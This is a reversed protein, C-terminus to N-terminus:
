LGVKSRITTKVLDPRRQLYPIIMDSIFRDKENAAYGSSAGQALASEWARSIDEIFTDDTKLKNVTKKFSSGDIGLVRQAEAINNKDKYIREANTKIISETRKDSSLVFNSIM